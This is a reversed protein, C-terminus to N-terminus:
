NIMRRRVQPNVPVGGAAKFVAIAVAVDVSGTAEPSWTPNIAAATGQILYAAAGYEAGGAYRQDAITFGSDVTMAATPQSSVALGSIILYGDASPTVSGPQITSAIAAAGLISGDLVTSTETGSWSQILLSTEYGGSMTVTLAASQTPSPLYKIAVNVGGSVFNTSSQWTGTDLIPTSADDYYSAIVATM